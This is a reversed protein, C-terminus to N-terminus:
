PNLLMNKPSVYIELPETKDEFITSEVMLNRDTYCLFKIFKRFNRLTYVVNNFFNELVIHILIISTRATLAM